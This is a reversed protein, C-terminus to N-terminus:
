GKVTGRVKPLFQMFTPKIPGSFYTYIREYLLDDLKSIKCKKKFILIESFIYM